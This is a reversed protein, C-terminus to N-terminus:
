VPMANYARRTNGMENMYTCNGEIKQKKALLDLLQRYKSPFLKEKWLIIIKRRNEISHHKKQTHTRIQTKNELESANGM